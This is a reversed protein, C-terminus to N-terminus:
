RVNFPLWITTSTIHETVHEFTDIDFAQGIHNGALDEIATDVALQYAGAQWPAQPTFRWEAEDHGASVTGAVSGQTTTVTLMRQMLPYNM